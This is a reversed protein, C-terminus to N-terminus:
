LLDTLINFLFCLLINVSTCIMDQKRQFFYNAGSYIDELQCVFVLHRKQHYSKPWWLKTQYITILYSFWSFCFKFLKRAIIFYQQTIILFQVMKCTTSKHYSIIWNNCTSSKNLSSFKFKVVTFLHWSCIIKLLESWVHVFYESSGDIILVMSKNFLTPEEEQPFVLHTESTEAWPMECIKM